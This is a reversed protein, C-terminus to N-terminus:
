NKSNIKLILRDDRAELSGIKLPLYKELFVKSTIEIPSQLITADMRKKIHDAIKFDVENGDFHTVIEMPLQSIYILNEASRTIKFKRDILIKDFILNKTELKDCRLTLNIVGENFKAAIPFKEDLTMMVEEKSGTLDEFTKPLPLDKGLMDALEVESFRLAGVRIKALREIFKSHIVISALEASEGSAQLDSSSIGITNDFGQVKLGEIGSQMFLQDVFPDSDLLMPNLFYKKYNEALTSLMPSAKTELNSILKDVAEKSGKEQLEPIKKLIENATKAPGAIAKVLPLPAAQVSNRAAGHLRHTDRMIIRGNTDVTAKSEFSRWPLLGQIRVTIVPPPTILTQAKAQAHEWFVGQNNLIIKKWATGHVAIGPKFSAGVDDTVPRFIGTHTSVVTQNSIDATTASNVMVYFEIGNFSPSPSATIVGSTMMSGSTVSKSEQTKTTENVITTDAFNKYLKAFVLPKISISFLETQAILTSSQGLVCVFLVFIKM